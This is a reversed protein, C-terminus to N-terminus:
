SSWSSVKSLKTQERDDQIHSKPRSNGPKITTSRLLDSSVGNFSSNLSENSELLFGREEQIVAELEFFSTPINAIRNFQNSVSVHNTEKCVEPTTVITGVMQESSSITKVKSIVSSFSRPAISMM